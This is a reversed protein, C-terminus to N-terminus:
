RGRALGGAPKATVGGMVRFVAIGPCAVISDEILTDAAAVPPAAAWHGLRWRLRRQTAFAWM